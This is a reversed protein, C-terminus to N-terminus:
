DSDDGGRGRRRQMAEDLEVVGDAGVHAAECAILRLRPLSAEPLAVLEMEHDKPDHLLLVVERQRAAARAERIRSMVVLLLEVEQARECAFTVAKRRELAEAVRPQAAAPDRPLERVPMAPAVMRLAHGARGLPQLLVCAETQRQGNVTPGNMAISTFIVMRDVRVLLQLAASMSLGGLCALPRRALRQLHVTDKFGYMVSEIDAARAAKEDEGGRGGGGGGGGGGAAGQGAPRQSAGARAAARAALVRSSLATLPACGWGHECWFAHLVDAWWRHAPAHGGRAEVGQGPVCEVVQAEAPSAEAEAASAFSSSSAAAESGVDGADSSQPPGQGAGSLLELEAEYAKAQESVLGTLEMARMMDRRAVRGAIKFSLARSEAHAAAREAVKVAAPAAGAAAAAAVALKQQQEERRHGMGAEDYRQKSTQRYWLAAKPALYVLLAPHPPPALLARAQSAAAASAALAARRCAAARESQAAGGGGEAAVALREAAAAWAAAEQEAVTRAVAAEALRLWARLEEGLPAASPPLAQRLMCAMRGTLATCLDYVHLTSRLRSAAQLRLGEWTGGRGSPGPAAQLGAAQEAAGALLERRLRRRASGLLLDCRRAEWSAPSSQLQRHPARFVHLVVSGLCWWLNHTVEASLRAAERETLTEPCVAGAGAETGPGAETAEEGRADGTGGGAESGLASPSGLGGGNATAEELLLLPANPALARGSTGCPPQLRCAALAAALEQASPGAGEASAGESAPSLCTDLLASALRGLD